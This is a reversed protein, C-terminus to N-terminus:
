ELASMRTRTAEMRLKVPTRPPQQTTQQTPTVERRTTPLRTRIGRDVTRIRLRLLRILLGTHGCKEALLTALRLELIQPYRVLLASGGLIQFTLRQLEMALALIHAQLLLYAQTPLDLFLLVTACSGVPQRRQHHAL